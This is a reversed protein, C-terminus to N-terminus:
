LSQLMIILENAGPLHPHLTSLIIKFFLLKAVQQSILAVSDWQNYSLVPAPLPKTGDPLLGINVWNQTTM